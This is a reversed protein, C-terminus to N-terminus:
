RQASTIRGASASRSPMKPDLAAALKHQLGSLRVARIADIARSGEAIRDLVLASEDVLQITLDFAQLEASYRSVLDNDAVLIDALGEILGRIDRLEAALAILLLPASRDLHSM